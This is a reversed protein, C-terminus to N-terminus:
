EPVATQILTAAARSILYRVATILQCNSFKKLTIIKYDKNQKIALNEQKFLRDLYIAKFLIGIVGLSSLAFTYLIGLNFDTICLGHGFPVIAWGLFSLILTAIPAVFFLM